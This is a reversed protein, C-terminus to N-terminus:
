AAPEQDVVEVPAASGSEPPRGTPQDSGVALWRRTPRAVPKREFGEFLRAAALVAIAALLYAGTTVATNNAIGQADRAFRTETAFVAVMCSILWLLWWAWVTTAFRDRLGEAKVLELVYVLPWVLAVLPLWAVAMFVATLAWSPPDDRTASWTALSLALAVAIAPPLLCSAWLAWARWPEARGARRFAVARRAILWHTLVAACIVVAALAAVSALVGLWVAAKAVIPNLLTSRNIILLLYRVLHVLTAVGLM